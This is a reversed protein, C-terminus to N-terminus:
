RFEFGIGFQEGPWAIGEALEPRHTLFLVAQDSRYNQLLFRCRSSETLRSAYTAPREPDGIIMCRFLPLIDQIGNNASVHRGFIFRSGFRFADGVGNSHQGFSQRQRLRM